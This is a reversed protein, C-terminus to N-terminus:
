DCGSSLSNFCLIGFGWGGASLILVEPKPFQYDGSDPPRLSRQKPVVPGQSGCTSTEKYTEQKEEM